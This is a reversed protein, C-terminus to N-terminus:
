RVREGVISMLVAGDSAMACRNAYDGAKGNLSARVPAWLSPCLMERKSAGAAPDDPCAGESVVTAGDAAACARNAYTLLVTKVHEQECYADNAGCPTKACVMQIKPDCEAAAASSLALLGLVFSRM